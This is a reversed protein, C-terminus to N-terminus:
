GGTVGTLAADIKAIADEATSRCPGSCFEGGELEGLRSRWEVSATAMLAGYGIREGLRIVAERNEQDVPPVAAGLALAERAEILAERLLANDSSLATAVADDALIEAAIQSPRLKRQIGSAVIAVLSAKVVVM